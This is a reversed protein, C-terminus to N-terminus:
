DDKKETEALKALKRRVVFAKIHVYLFRFLSILGLVLGIFVFSIFACTFVSALIKM